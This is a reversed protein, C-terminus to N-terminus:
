KIVTNEYTVFVSVWLSYVGPPTHKHCYLMVDHHLITRELPGGKFCARANFVVTFPERRGRFAKARQNWAVRPACAAGQLTFAVMEGARGNWRRGPPVQYIPFPVRSSLKRILDSQCSWVHARLVLRGHTSASYRTCYGTDRLLYIDFINPTFFFFLFFSLFKLYIDPWRTQKFITLWLFTSYSHISMIECILMVIFSMLQFAILSIECLLDYLSFLVIDAMDQFINRFFYVGCYGFINSVKWQSHQDIAWYWTLQHCKGFNMSLYLKILM